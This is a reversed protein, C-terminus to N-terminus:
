GERGPSAPPELFEPINTSGYRCGTGARLREAVLGLARKVGANKEPDTMPELRVTLGGPREQIQIFFKQTHGRDIVLTELLAAREDTEVYLRDTKVLREGERVAFPRHLRAVDKLTLSGELIVHPM